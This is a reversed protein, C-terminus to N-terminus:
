AVDRGDPWAVLLITPEITRRVSRVRAQDGVGLQPEM